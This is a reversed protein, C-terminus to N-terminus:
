KRYITTPRTRATSLQGAASYNSLALFFDRLQGLQQNNLNALTAPDLSQLLQGLRKWLDELSGVRNNPESFSDSLVQLSFPDVFARTGGVIDGAAVHNLMSQLKEVADVRVADADNRERAVRLRDLQMAAKAALLPLAPDFVSFFQNTPLVAQATSTNTM